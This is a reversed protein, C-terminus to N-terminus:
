PCKAALLDGPPLAREVLWAKACAEVDIPRGSAAIADIMERMSAAKGTHERFFKALVALLADEGIRREVARYFFAGKTYPIANFNRAPDWDGCTTGAGPWARLERAGNMALALEEAYSAWVKPAIPDGIGELAKATLYDVTGESLVFDEFCRLRVGVSFWGHIAEHVHTDVEGFRHEGVHWYPHHELGDAARVEVVAAKPGIPYTGIHQEIWDFAPLLARTGQQALAEDGSFFHVGVETSAKTTGLKRYVYPGVTWAPVYSPVPTTISPPFVARMGAPAGAISIAYTSGSAFDARCPFVNGCFWPWTYTREEGPRGTEVFAGEHAGDDRADQDRYSYDIVVIPEVGPRDPIGVDLLSRRRGQSPAGEHIAFSLMRGDDLAVTEVILGREEIPRGAPLAGVDFSMGSSGTAELRLRARARHTTVDVTLETHLIRRALDPKPPPDDAVASSKPTARPVESGRCTTCSLAALPLFLCLARRRNRM